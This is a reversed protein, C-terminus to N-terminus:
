CSLWHDDGRLMEVLYYTSVPEHYRVSCSMDTRAADEQPFVWKPSVQALQRNNVSCTNNFLYVGVRLDSIRCVGLVNAAQTPLLSIM